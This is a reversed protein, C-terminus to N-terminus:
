STKSTIITSYSGYVKTGNVTRYARVKYYYTKKATVKTNTVTTSTVTAIKTYTGTKSTSRYVEYGTAGYVSKWSLKISKTTPAAKLEKVTGPVAKMSVVSSYGSCRNSSNCAKVKYYYTKGPTLNTDKYTGAATLEGVKSYTGDKSTSRYILYKTAGTSANVKISLTQYNWLSVSATPTKPATKTSVVSSFNGYTYKGDVLKYARVKYYYMKNATLGTDKYTLTGNSTITAVKTFTKNDTSRYVQYGTTSVKDWALNIVTTYASSIKLNKVTNPIIKKSIVNSFKAGGFKNIAKVKYYYTTGYTLGSNVYKENTTTAIKTFTKNDTSRYIEYSTAVDQHNWTLTMANNSASYKLTPADFGYIIVKNSGELDKYGYASIKYNITYEGVDKFTPMETLDYNTNGISYRITYNQADVNITLSHNNGDYATEYDTTNNTIDKYDDWIAYLTVIGENQNTLNKLRANNSYKTGTGDPSTNWEKLYKNDKTFQCDPLTFYEDYTLNSNDMNGNAGNSDYKIQYHIPSWIAYLKTNQTISISAEDSYKTGTGDAKTNWEKFTYGERVFSNPPLNSNANKVLELDAMEGTGQNSYFSIIYTEEKWQAYLTVRYQENFPIDDFIISSNLDPSYKTGTGDAKTNWNDLIFDNKSFGMNGFAVINNSPYTLDWDFTINGNYDSTEGNGNFTIKYQIEDWIAYLTLDENLGGEILQENTYSTGTGNPNTNWNRFIHGKYIFTNELLNFDQNVDVEQINTEAAPNNSNFTITNMQSITVQIDDQYGDYLSTIHITTVGEKKATIVGASSINLYEDDYTWEIRKANNTNPRILDYINKSGSVNLKFDDIPETFDFVNTLSNPMPLRNIADVVPKTWYSSNSFNNTYNYVTINNFSIKTNSNVIQTNNLSLSGYLMNENIYRAGIISVSNNNRAYGVVDGISPNNLQAQYTSASIVNNVTFSNVYNAVGVIGGLGNGNGIVKSFSVSDSITANLVKGSSEIVGVIGGAFTTDTNGVIANSYLNYMNCNVNWTVGNATDIGGILGGNYYSSYVRGGAVSINSIDIGDIMSVVGALAGAKYNGNINVDKIILNKIYNNAGYITEFIGVPKDSINNPRNVYLGSIVHNNGDFSGYFDDIPLWGAGSNYFLGKNNTTDYSLDLDNNLVYYKEHTDHSRLENLDSATKIVYPNYETGIGGMTNNHKTLNWELEDYKNDNYYVEITYTGLEVDESNYSILANIYNSISFNRFIHFKNTVDVQNDDLVRFTLSNNPLLDRTIGSIVFVNNDNFSTAHPNSICKNDELTCKALIQEDTKTVSTLDIFKDDNVNSTHISGYYDYEVYNTYFNFKFTDVDEDLIINNDSIDITYLGPQSYTQSELLVGGTNSSYSSDKVIIENTSENFLVSVTLNYASVFFKVKNVKEKTNGKTFTNSSGQVRYSNDYDVESVNSISSYPSKMTNYPLYIFTQQNGWSNQVIWAGNITYLTGNNCFYNDNVKNAELLEFNTKDLCIKHTYNDDWGIVSVAHNIGGSPNWGYPIYYILNKGNTNLATETGSPTYEVSLNDYAGIGVYLSGNTVIQEKILNVLADVDEQNNTSLPDFHLYENVTYETNDINTIEYPSLESRFNYDYKWYKNSTISNDSNYNVGNSCNGDCLIPSIGIATANVFRLMNGGDNLYEGLVSNNNLFPNRGIDIAESAITTAYDIQKESFTLMKTKNSKIAMHSELSTTSAFSWCIGETGQDYINTIYGEDRLNYYPLAIKENSDGHKATFNNKYSHDTIYVEPIHGYKSSKGNKLYLVYDPNLYPEEAEKNKETHILKGTEEYVKKIYEKAEAPLYAYAEKKLIKSIDSKSNNIYLLVGTVVMIIIVIPLLLKVKKEM